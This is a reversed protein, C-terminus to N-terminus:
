EHKESGDPAPKTAVDFANEALTDTGWRYSCCGCIHLIYESKIPYIPHTPKRLDLRDPMDHNYDGKGARYSRNIDTSGCKPCPLSCPSGAAAACSVGASSNAVTTDMPKQDDNTTM